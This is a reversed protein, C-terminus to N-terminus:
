ILGQLKAKSHSLDHVFKIVAGNVEEPDPAVARRANFWDENTGLYDGSEANWRLLRSMKDVNVSEILDSNWTSKSWLDMSSLFGNILNENFNPFGGNSGACLRGDSFINPLHLTGYSPTNTEPEYFMGNLFGNSITGNESVHGVLYLHVAEPVPLLLEQRSHEVPNITMGQRVSLNPRVVQIGNDTGTEWIGHLNIATVEAGLLTHKKGDTYFFVRGFLPNDENYMIPPSILQLDVSLTRQLSKVISETVVEDTFTRRTVVGHNDLILISESM